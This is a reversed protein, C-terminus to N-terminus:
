ASFHVLSYLELAEIINIFTNLSLCFLDNQLMMDYNFRFFRFHDIGGKNFKDHFKSFFYFEHSSTLILFNHNPMYPTPVLMLRIMFILLYSTFCLSCISARASSPFRHKLTCTVLKQPSLVSLELPATPVILIFFAKLQLQKSSM